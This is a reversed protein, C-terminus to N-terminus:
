DSKGGDLGKKLSGSKGWPKWDLPTKGGFRVIRYKNRNVLRGWAAPM